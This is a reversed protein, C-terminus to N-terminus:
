GVSKEDPLLKEDRFIFTKFEIGNKRLNAEAYKGAAEYTNTDAVLFVKNGYEKVFDALKNIAGKKCILNDIRADHTKECSCKYNKLTEM